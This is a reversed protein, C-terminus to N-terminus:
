RDTPDAEAPAVEYDVGVGRLYYALIMLACCAAHALHPHGSERDFKEGKAYAALHRMTAAFMRSRSMGKEWNRDGYKKAGYTLIQAVAELADWPLLDFRAKGDDDKRAERVLPPRGRKRKPEEVKGYLAALKQNIRESIERAQKDSLGGTM